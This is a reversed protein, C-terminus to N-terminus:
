LAERTQRFTTKRTMKVPQWGERRCYERAKSGVMPPYLKAGTPTIIYYAPAWRYGRGTGVEIQTPELIAQGGSRVPIKFSKPMLKIPSHANSSKESRTPRGSANAPAVLMLLLMLLLLMLLMLLM